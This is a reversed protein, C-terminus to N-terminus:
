SAPKTPFWSRQRWIECLNSPWFTQLDPNRYRASTEARLMEARVHVYMVLTFCVFDFLVYNNNADSAKTQRKEM